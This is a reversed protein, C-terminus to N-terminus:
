LFATLRITDMEGGGSSLINAATREAMYMYARLDM